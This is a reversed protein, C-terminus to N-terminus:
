WIRGRRLSGGEAICMLDNLRAKLGAPRPEVAEGYAIGEESGYPSVITYGDAGVRGEEDYSWRFGLPTRSACRCSIGCADRVLGHVADLFRVVTRAQSEEVLITPM